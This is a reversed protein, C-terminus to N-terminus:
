LGYLNDQIPKLARIYPLLIDLSVIYNPVEFLIEKYCNSPTARHFTIEAPIGKQLQIHAPHYGKEATIHIKQIGNELSAKVIETM